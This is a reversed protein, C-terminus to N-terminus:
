QSNEHVCNVGLEKEKLHIRTQEVLVNLEKIQVCNDCIQRTTPDLPPTSFSWHVNKCVSCQVGINDGKDKWVKYLVPAYPM